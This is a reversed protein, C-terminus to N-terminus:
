SLLCYKKALTLRTSLQSYTNNCFYVLGILIRGFIYEVGGGERYAITYLCAHLSFWTRVIEM